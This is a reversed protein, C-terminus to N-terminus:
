LLVGGEGAKHSAIDTSTKRPDAGFPFELYQLEPRRRQPSQPGIRRMQHPSYRTKLNNAPSATAMAILTMSTQASSVFQAGSMHLVTEEVELAILMARMRYVVPITATAVQDRPRGPPQHKLVTATILDRGPMADTLM